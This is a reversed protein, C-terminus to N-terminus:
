SFIRESKSSIDSHMRNLRNEVTFAHVVRLRQERPLRGQGRTQQPYAARKKSGWISASLPADFLLVSESSSFPFNILM